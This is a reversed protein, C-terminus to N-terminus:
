VTQAFDLSSLMKILVDVLETASDDQDNNTESLMPTSVPSSESRSSGTGTGELSPTNSSSAFALEELYTTNHSMRCASGNPCSGRNVWLPCMQDTADRIEVVSHAYTCNKDSCNTKKCLKTKSMDKRVLLESQDHSFTCEKNYKCKGNLFHRCMKTKFLQRKMANFEIPSVDTDVTSTSDSRAPANKNANKRGV